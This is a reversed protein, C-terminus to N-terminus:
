NSFEFLDAVKQYYEETPWFCGMAKQTEEFSRYTIVPM